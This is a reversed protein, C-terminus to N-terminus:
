RSRYRLLLLYKQITGEMAAIFDLNFDRATHLFNHKEPGLGNNVFVSRREFRQDFYKGAMKSKMWIPIEAREWSTRVMKRDTRSTAEVM